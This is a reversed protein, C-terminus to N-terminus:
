YNTRLFEHFNEFFLCDLVAESFGSKQLFHYLDTMSEVGTIGQPLCDVGDFDCGFAVHDVGCVNQLHKIHRMIASIDASQLSLFPPYLNVGVLGGSEAIRKLLEDPLNRPHSTLSLANSHTAFVPRKAQSLVDSVSQYSAHSVDIFIGNQELLELVAFGMASLGCDDKSFAGSGLRNTHNYIMSFICVNQKSLHVVREEADLLSDFVDGGEVTLVALGKGADLNQGNFVSLGEAKLLDHSHQLFECLYNWKDAVSEKIYHAFCQIYRSYQNLKQLNIHLTDDQLTAGKEFCTCLTDCHLDAISIM